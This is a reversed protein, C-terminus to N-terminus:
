ILVTRQRSVIRFAMIFKITSLFRQDVTCGENPICASFIYGVQADLISPTNTLETQIRYYYRGNLTGRLGIRYSGLEFTRGGQFDDDRFSFIGLSQALMNLSIEETKLKEALNNTDSTNQALLDAFSIAAAFFIFITLFLTKAKM